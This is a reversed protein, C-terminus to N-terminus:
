ATRTCPDSTSTSIYISGRERLGDGRSASALPVAALLPVVCHFYMAYRTPDSPKWVIRVTTGSRSKPTLCAPEGWKLTEELEGVGETSAATDFILERLALLRRRM